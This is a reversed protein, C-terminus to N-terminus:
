GTQIPLVISPAASIAVLRGVLAEWVLGGTSGPKVSPDLAVLGASRRELCERVLDTAVGLHEIVFGLRKFVARNGFRDGYDVLLADDRHGGTLHEHLVDAGGRM